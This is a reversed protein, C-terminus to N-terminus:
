SGNNLMYHGSAERTISDRMLRDYVCKSDPSNLTGTREHIALAENLMSICEDCDGVHRRHDSRMQLLKAHMPTGLTGTIEHLHRAQEFDEEAGSMHGLGLKATGRNRLIIAGIMSENLGAKCALAMAKNLTTLGEEYKAETNYLDGRADVVLAGGATALLDLQGYIAEAADFASAAAEYRVTEKRLVGLQKLLYATDAAAHVGRQHRIILWAEELLSTAEDVLGIERLLSGVKACLHVGKADLVPQEAFSQQVHKQCTSAIWRHLRLRLVYNISDFGSGDTIMRFIREQDELCSATSSEVDLARVMKWVQDLGQPGTFAEHLNATDRPPMLLCLRVQPNTVAIYMEYNCWLRKIYSPENWPTLIGLVSGIGLVLSVLTDKFDEFPIERRAVLRHQNICVCDIWVCTGVASCKQNVCFELLTNCIDEVSYSWAYSLMHNARGVHEPGEVCDVYAAGLKGDRPCKVLLGKGRIIKPEIEYITSHKDLGQLQM